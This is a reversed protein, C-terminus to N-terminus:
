GVSKLKIGALDPQKIQEAIRILCSVLQQSESFSETLSFTVTRTHCFPLIAPVHCYVKQLRPHQPILTRGIISSFSLLCLTRSNSFLRTSISQKILM